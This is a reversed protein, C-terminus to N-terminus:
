KVHNNKKKKLDLLHVILNSNFFFIDNKLILINKVYTKDKVFILIKKKYKRLKM